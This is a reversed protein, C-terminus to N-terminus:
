WENELDTIHPLRHYVYKLYKNTKYIYCDKTKDGGLIGKDCHKRRVGQSSEVVVVYLTLTVILKLCKLTTRHIFM